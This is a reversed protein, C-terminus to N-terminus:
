KRDSERGTGADDSPKGNSANARISSKTPIGESNLYPDSPEEGYNDQTNKCRQGQMRKADEQVVPEKSYEAADGCSPLCLDKGRRPLPVSGPSRQTGRGYQDSFRGLVQKCIETDSEEGQDPSYEHQGCGPMTTAVRGETKHSIAHFLYCAAKLLFYICTVGTSILAPLGATYFVPESTDM